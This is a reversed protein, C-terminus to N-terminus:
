GLEAARRPPACEEDGCHRKEGHGPAPWRDRDPSRSGALKTSNSRKVIEQAAVGPTGLPRVAPPYQALAQDAPAFSYKHCFDLCYCLWEHHHPRQNAMIDRQALRAEYHRTLEPSVTSM